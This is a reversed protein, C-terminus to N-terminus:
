TEDACSPSGFVYHHLVYSLFSLALGLGRPSVKCLRMQTLHISDYFLLIYLM